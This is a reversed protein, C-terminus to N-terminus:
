KIVIKGYDWIQLEITSQLAQLFAKVKGIDAISFEAIFSHKCTSM